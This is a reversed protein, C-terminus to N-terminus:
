KHTGKPPGALHVIEDAVRAAADTRALGRAAASMRRHTAPELLEEVKSALLPGDLEGDAAMLAVGAQQLAIANKTQHDATAQPYPVLLAPVGRALLEAVSGGARAVAVTAAALALPFDDLYAHAKYRPNAVGVVCAQAQGPRGSPGGGGGTDHSGTLAASVRAFDQAGAVHVVSFPTMEGSFAELTADNLRRAGLSGGFVLVVPIEPDLNFRALGDERKAALLEPRIPRGTHVFRGGEKGDIPFSLCVKRVLLSLTRNTWGLHADMEVAVTPIRLVAAEAVVPGSAYAGVGCVCAPRLRRLLRFADCAAVPFSALTRLTGFGLRREFGRIRVLSFPYGARPVLTSEM